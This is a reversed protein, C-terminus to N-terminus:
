AICLGAGFKLEPSNRPMFIKEAFKAAISAKSGIEGGPM